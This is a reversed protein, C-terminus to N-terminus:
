AETLDNVGDQWRSREGGLGGILLDARQLKVECDEIENQLNNKKNIATDYNSELIAIQKEVQELKEKAEKLKKM